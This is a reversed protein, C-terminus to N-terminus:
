RGKFGLVHRFTRAMIRLDVVLSQHQLYWFEYQLKELADIDDAGYPYNVQAWGTLGPRVLHRSDYFPIASSLRTVYQPQEPRPGVISLDGRLINIIQPLEDLHSRRLLRGFATIRSDNERTWEGNSSGPRMTRFKLIRFTSGGRGIREQAFFLPGRNALLNGILVLPTVIVFAILGIVAIVSDILRSVRAYGIHHLERVDFLLATTQLERVPIRGLWQTYFALMSRVRTGRAHAAAAAAVIAPSRRAEESLVILNIDESDCFHAILDPTSIESEDLSAAVVCPIEAHFAVDAVVKEVDGSSCVLLVRERDAAIRMFRAVLSSWAFLAVFIAPISLALLFRPLVIRAISTQIGVFLSCAVISTTLASKWRDVGSGQEPLGFSYSIVWCLTSYVVIWGFRSSETLDYQGIYQAHVLGIALVAGLIVAFQGFRFGWM